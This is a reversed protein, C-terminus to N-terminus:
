AGEIWEKLASWTRRYGKGKANQPWWRLGGVNVKLTGLKKGGSGNRKWKDWVEFTLGPKGLWLYDGLSAKVWKTPRGPQRGKM